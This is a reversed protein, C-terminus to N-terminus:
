RGSPVKCALPRGGGGGWAVGKCWVSWIHLVAADTQGPRYVGHAGTHTSSTGHTDHPKCHHQVARPAGMTTPCARVGRPRWGV